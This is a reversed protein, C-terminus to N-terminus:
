PVDWTRWRLAETTHSAALQQAVEVSECDQHVEWDSGCKFLYFPGGNAYRAVAMALITVAPDSGGLQHFGGSESVAWCLVDAEDLQKPPLQM